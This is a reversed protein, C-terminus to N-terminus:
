RQDPPAVANPWLAFSVCEEPYARAYENLSRNLADRCAARDADVDAVPGPLPRLEVIRAADEEHILALFTTAGTLRRLRFWGARVPMQRGSVTITFETRGGDAADALIFAVTGSRVAQAMEYLGAAATSSDHFYVRRGYSAEARLFPAGAPIRFRALGTASIVPYGLEVLHPALRGGGVHFRIVIAGRGKLADDLKNQDRIRIAKPKGGSQSEDVGIFEALWRGRNTLLQSLCVIRERTTARHQAVWRIARWLRPPNVLAEGVGAGTLLAVSLASPLKQAAYLLPPMVIRQLRHGAPVARDRDTTM